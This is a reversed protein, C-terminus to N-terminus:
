NSSYTERKTDEEDRIRYVPDPFFTMFIAARDLTTRALGRFNRGTERSRTSKSDDFLLTSREFDFSEFTWRNDTEIVLGRQRHRSADNLLPAM